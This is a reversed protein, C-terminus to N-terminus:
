GRGAASKLHSYLRSCVWEKNQPRYAGVDPDLVMACVETMARIYDLLEGVDYSINTKGPNDHQLRQEFM